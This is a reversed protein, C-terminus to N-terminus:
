LPNSDSNTVMDHRRNAQISSLQFPSLGPDISLPAVPARVTRVFPASDAFVALSM